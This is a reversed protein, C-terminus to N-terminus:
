CHLNRGEKEEARCGDGEGKWGVICGVVCGDERFASGFGPELGEGEVVDDAGGGVFVVGFFVVAGEDRGAGADRVLGFVVADTAAPAGNPVGKIIEGRVLIIITCTRDLRHNCPLIVLRAKTELQLLIQSTLTPPIQIIRAKPITNHPM